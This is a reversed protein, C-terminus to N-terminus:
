AILAGPRPAIHSHTLWRDPRRLVLRGGALVIVHDPHAESVALPGGGIGQEVCQPPLQSIDFALFRGHDTSAYLLEGGLSAALHTAAGGGSALEIRSLWQWSSTSWVHVSPGGDDASFALRGDRSEAVSCISGFVPVRPGGRLRAVPALGPSVVHLTSLVAAYLREQSPPLYVARIGVAQPGESLQTRTLVSLTGPAMATVVGDRSGLYVAHIGVAIRSARGFGGDLGAIGDTCTRMKGAVIRQSTEFVSPEYFREAVLACTLAHHSFVTGELDVCVVFDEGAAADAYGHPQGAHAARGGAYPAEAHQELSYADFRALGETGAVYVSTGDPSVTIVYAGALEPVVSGRAVHDQHLAVGHAPISRRPPDKPGNSPKSTAYGSDRSSAFDEPVPPCLSHQLNLTGFPGFHRKHPHYGTDPEKKQAIPSGPKTELNVDAHRREPLRGVKARGESVDVDPTELNVDAHRREPLRGAENLRPRSSAPRNVGTLAPGEMTIPSLPPGEGSDDVGKHRRQAFIGIEPVEHSIPPSSNPLSDVIPSHAFHRRGRQYGSRQSEYDEVGSFDNSRLAESVGGTRYVHGNSNRCNGFGDKRLEDIGAQPADRVDFVESVPQQRQQQKPLPSSMPAREVPSATPVRSGFDNRWARLVKAVDKPGVVELLQRTDGSDGAIKTGFYEMDWCHKRAAGQLEQRSDGSVQGLRSFWEELTRSM